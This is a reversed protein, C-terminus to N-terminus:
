PPSQPLSPVNLVQSPAKPFRECHRQSRVGLVLSREPLAPPFCELKLRFWVRAPLHWRGRPQPSLRAPRSWGREAGGFPPAPPTGHARVRSPFPSHPPSRCPGPAGPFHWRKEWGYTLCNDGLCPESAPLSFDGARKWNGLSKYIKDKEGALGTYRFRRQEGCAGYETAIRENNRGTESTSDRLPVGPPPLRGGREARM